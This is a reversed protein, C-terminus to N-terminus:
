YDEEEDEVEEVDALRAYTTKCIKDKRRRGNKVLKGKSDIEAFFIEEVREGTVIDDRYALYYAISQKSLFKNSKEYIEALILGNNGNDDSDAIPLNAVIEDMCENTLEALEERQNRLLEAKTM